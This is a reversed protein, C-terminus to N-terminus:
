DNVIVEYLEIAQKCVEHFSIGKFYAYEVAASICLAKEDSM